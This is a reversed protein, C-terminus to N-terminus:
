PCPLLEIGRLVLEGDVGAASLGLHRVTGTDRWAPANRLEVELREVGGRLPLVLMRTFPDPLGERDSWTLLVFPGAVLGYDPPGPDARPSTLDLALGCVEDSAIELPGSTLLSPRRAPPQVLAHLLSQETHRRGPRLIWGTGAQWSFLRTRDAGAAWGLGLQEFNWRWPLGDAPAGRERAVAGAGRWSSWGQSWGQGDPTYVDAVVLVESSLEDLLVEPGPVYEGYDYLERTSQMARPRGQLFVWPAEDLGPFRRRLTGSGLMALTGRDPRQLSVALRRPPESGDLEGAIVELLSSATSRNHRVMDHGALVFGGAAGVLLAAAALVAVLREPRGRGAPLLGALLLAAGMSPLLLYRGGLDGPLADRLLWPAPVLLCATTWAAGVALLARGPCRRLAATLGAAGLGALIVVDPWLLGRNAAASAPTVLVSARRLILPIPDLEGGGALGRGLGLVDATTMLVLLYLAAAGGFGFLMARWPPSEGPEDRRREMLELALLGAPLAVAPLKSFCALLYLAVALGVGRRSRRLRPWAAATVACLLVATGDERAALFYLPQLTAANLGFLAAAAVAPATAGALRRAVLFVAIVTALHLLLNTAYYGGPWLGFLRYDAAWFLYPVLRLADQPVHGSWACSFAAADGQLMGAAVDIHFWDDTNWFDLELVPWAAWTVVGLVLVLGAWWGPRQETRRPRDSVPLSAPLPRPWM